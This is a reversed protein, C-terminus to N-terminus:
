GNGHKIKVNELQTLDQLQMAAIAANFASASAGGDIIGSLTTIAAQTAVKLVNLNSNLKALETKLPNIKVTGGNVNGMIEVSDTQEVMIVAGINRTNNIFAVLVDSNIVPKIVVGSKDFGLLINEILLDDFEVNCSYGNVSKVKCWATNLPIMNMVMARIAKRIEEAEGANM